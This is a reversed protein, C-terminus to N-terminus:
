TGERRPEGDVALESEMIGHIYRSTDDGSADQRNILAHDHSRDGVLQSVVGHLM